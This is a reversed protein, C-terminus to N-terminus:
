QQPIHKFSLAGAWIFNAHTRISFDIRRQCEDFVCAHFIFMVNETSQLRMKASISTPTLSKTDVAAPSYKCQM